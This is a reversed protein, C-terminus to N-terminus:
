HERAYAYSILSTPFLCKQWFIHTHFILLIDAKSIKTNFNRLIQKVVDL